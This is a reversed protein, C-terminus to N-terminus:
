QCLELFILKKRFLKELHNHDHYFIFYIKAEFNIFDFFVQNKDLPIVFVHKSNAVNFPLNEASISINLNDDAEAETVIANAAPPYWQDVCKDNKRM